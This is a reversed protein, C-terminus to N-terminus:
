KNQMIFAHLKLAIESYVTFAALHKWFWQVHVYVVHIYAYIPRGALVVTDAQQWPHLQSLNHVKGVRQCEDGAYRM